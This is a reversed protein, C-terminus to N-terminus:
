EEIEVWGVAERKEIKLNRREMERDVKQEITEGTMAEASKRRLWAKFKPDSNLRQFALRKNQSQSKLEQSEAVAGSEPHRIRVATANKNRNQGGPGSGKFHTIEFDNKTLSFLHQRM